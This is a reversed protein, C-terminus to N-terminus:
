KVKDDDDDDSLDDDDDDYNFLISWRLQNYPRYLRHLPGLM